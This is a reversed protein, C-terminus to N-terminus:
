AVTATVNTVTGAMPVAVPAQWKENVAMFPGLLVPATANVTIVDYSAGAGSLGGTFTVTHAAAGNGAIYLLDGDMDKSPAAVTMALITTGNLLAVMDTGPTPLTIAGAATYSKKDRRRGGLPYADVQAPAPGAFDSGVGATVGATIPHPRNYTGHVGRIVPVVTGVAEASQQMIEDGVQVLYNKGFGTASAVTLQTDDVGVAASLTTRVLAM